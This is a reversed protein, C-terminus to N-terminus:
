VLLPLKFLAQLDTVIPKNTLVTLCESFKLITANGPFNSNILHIWTLFLQVVCNARALGGMRLYKSKEETNNAIEIM